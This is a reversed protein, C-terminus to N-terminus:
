KRLVKRYIIASGKMSDDNFKYSNVLPFTKFENIYESFVEKTVELNYISSWYRQYLTNEDTDYLYTLLM